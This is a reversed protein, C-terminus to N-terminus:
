YTGGGHSYSQMIAKQRVALNISEKTLSELRRECLGLQAAAIDLDIQAQQVSVVTLAAAKALSPPGVYAMRARAEEIAFATARWDRQGKHWAAMRLWKDTVHSNKDLLKDIVGPDSVDTFVYGEDDFHSTDM